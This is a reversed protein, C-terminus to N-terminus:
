SVQQVSQRDRLDRVLSSMNLLTEQLVRIQHNTDYIPVNPMGIHYPTDLHSTDKGRQIPSDRSNQNAQTTRITHTTHATHPISYYHTRESVDVNTSAKSQSKNERYHSNRDIVDGVNQFSGSSVLPPNKWNDGYNQRNNRNNDKANRKDEGSDSGDSSTDKSNDSDGRENREDRRIGNSISSRGGSRRDNDIASNTEGPGRRKRRIDSRKEGERVTIESQEDYAQVLLDHQVELERLSM